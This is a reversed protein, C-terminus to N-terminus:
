VLKRAWDTEQLVLEPDREWPLVAPAHHQEDVVM